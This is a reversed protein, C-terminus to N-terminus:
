QAKIAQDSVTHNLFMNFISSDTHFESMDARRETLIMTETLFDIMLCMHVTFSLILGYMHAIQYTIDLNNTKDTSFIATLSGLCM